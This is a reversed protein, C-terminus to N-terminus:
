FRKVIKASNVNLYKEGVNHMIPAYENKLVGYEGQQTSNGSSAYFKIRLGNEVKKSTCHIYCIILDRVKIEIFEVEDSPCKVNLKTKTYDQGFITQLREINKNSLHANYKNSIPSIFEQVTKINTQLYNLKYREDQSVHVAKILNQLEDLRNYIEKNREKETPMQLFADMLMNFDSYIADYATNYQAFAKTSSLPTNFLICLMIILKKMFSSHLNIIM